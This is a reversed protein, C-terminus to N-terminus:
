CTNWIWIDPLPPHPHAPHLFAYNSISLLLQRKLLSLYTFIHDDPNNHGPTITWLLWQSCCDKKNLVVSVWVIMNWRSILHSRPETTLSNDVMSQSLFSSWHSSPPLCSLLNLHSSGTNKNTCRGDRFRKYKVSSIMIPLFRIVCTNCM